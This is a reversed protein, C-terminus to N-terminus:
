PPRGAACYQRVASMAKASEETRTGRKRGGGPLVSGWMRVASEVVRGGGPKLRENVGPESPWNALETGDLEDYLGRGCREAM